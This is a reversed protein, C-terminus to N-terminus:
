IDGYLLGLYKLRAWDATSSVIEKITSGVKDATKSATKLFRDYSEETEDTVKKLETLASDIERVYTIGKKVQNIVDYVSISGILYTGLEKTKRKISDLFSETKKTGTRLSKIKGETVDVAASYEAFTNAGEKVTYNLEGTDANFGKITARYGHEKMIIQTLQQEYARVDLGGFSSADGQLEKANDGSYKNHIALYADMEEKLTKVQNIRQSLTKQDQEDVDVGKAQIIDRLNRLEEVQKSLDEAKKEFESTIGINGIANRVTNQGANALSEAANIGTDRQAEKVRKKFAKEAEKEAEKQAKKQAKEAAKQQTTEKKTNELNGQTETQVIDARKELEVVQEKVLNLREKEASTTRELNDIEQEANVQKSQSTDSNEDLKNSNDVISEESSIPRTDIKTIAEVLGDTNEAIRNLTNTTIGSLTDELAWPAKEPGDSQQTKPAQIDTFIEQLVARLRDEAVGVGEQGSEGQNQPSTQVKDVQEKLNQIIADKDSLEQELKSNQETLAKNDTAVIDYHNNLTELRAEYYNELSRKDNEEDAREREAQALQGQLAEIKANSETQLRTNEADKDALERNKQNLEEQLRQAKENAVNLEETSTGGINVDASGTEGTPAADSTRDLSENLGEIAQQSTQASNKLHQLLDNFSDFVVMSEKIQNEDPNFLVSGYTNGDWELDGTDMLVGEYGMGQMFRSAFNRSTLFDDPANTFKGNGDLGNAVVLQKMQMIWEVFQERSMNFADFVITAEAFLADETVGKIDSDFGRFDGSALIFKQLKTLYEKLKEAQEVTNVIYMNYQSADFEFYKVKDLALAADSMELDMAGARTSAYLGDGYGGFNSELSSVINWMSDSNSWNGHGRNVDVKGRRILLLKNQKEFEATTKTTAAEEEQAAESAKDRSDAHKNADDKNKSGGFMNAFMPNNMIGGTTYSPEQAERRSANESKQLLELKEKIKQNIEDYNNQIAKTLLGEQELQSLIEARKQLNSEADQSTSVNDDYANLQSVLEERKAKAAAEKEIREKEAAEAIREANNVDENSINEKQGINAAPIDFAKNLIGQLATKIGEIMPKKQEYLKTFDNGEKTVKNRHTKNDSNLYSEYLKVFKLLAQYEIEWPSDAPLNRYEDYIAQLGKEPLYNLDNVLADLEKGAPRFKKTKANWLREYAEKIEELTKLEHEVAQGDVVGADQNRLEKLQANIAEIQEPIGKLSNNLADIYKNLYRDYEMLQGGVNESLTDFDYSSLTTKDTILGPTKDITSSMRYLKSAADYTHILAQNYEETGQTLVGLQEIAEIFDEQLDDAFTTIDRDGRMQNLEDQSFFHAEGKELTSLDSFFRYKRVNQSLNKQKQELAKKAQEIKQIEKSIDITSVSTKSGTNIGQSVAQAMRSAINKFVHEDIKIDTFVLPQKGMRTLEENFAEGIEKLSDEDFGFKVDSIVDQLERAYEEADKKVDSKDLIPKIKALFETKRSM